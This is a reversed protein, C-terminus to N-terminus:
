NQVNHMLHQTENKSKIFKRVKGIRSFSHIPPSLRIGSFSPWLSGAGRIAGTPRETWLTPTRKEDQEQSETLWCLVM